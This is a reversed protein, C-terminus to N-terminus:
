TGARKPASGRPSDAKLLGQKVLVYRRWMVRNKWRIVGSRNETWDKDAGARHRSRASAGRRTLAPAPSSCRPAGIPLAGTSFPPFAAQSRAAM